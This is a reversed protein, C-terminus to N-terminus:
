LPFVHRRSTTEKKTCDRAGVISKAGGMDKGVFAPRRETLFKALTGCNSARGSMSRVDADTAAEDLGSRSVSPTTSSESSHTTYRFRDLVCM